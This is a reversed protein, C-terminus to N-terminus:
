NTVVKLNLEKKGDDSLKHVVHEGVKAFGHYIRDNAKDPLQGKALGPKADGQDSTAVTPASGDMIPLNPLKAM